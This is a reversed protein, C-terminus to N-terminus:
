SNNHLLHDCFTILFGDIKFSIGHVMEGYKQSIPIESVVITDLYQYLCLYYSPYQCHVLAKQMSAELYSRRRPISRVLLYLRIALTNNGCSTFLDIMSGHLKIVM